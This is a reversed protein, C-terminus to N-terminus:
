NQGIMLSSLSRITQTLRQFNLLEKPFFGECKRSDYFGDNELPNYIFVSDEPM